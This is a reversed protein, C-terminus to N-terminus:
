ESPNLIKPPNKCAFYTCEKEPSIKKLALEIFRCRTMMYRGVLLGGTDFGCSM